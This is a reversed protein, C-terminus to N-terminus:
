WIGITLETSSGIAARYMGGSNFPMAIAGTSDVAILGATGHESALKRNIVVDCADALSLGSYEMLASVDYAAVAKMILEGHGTCSVACTANNAYTGAGIIPTDGIRGVRKNTMGGTSTAAALNGDADLAVAGVTGTADPPTIGPLLEGTPAEGPLPEDPAHDLQVRLAARAIELQDFREKSFFYADDAFVIGEERAFRAAGDGAMLVHESREMVARALTIPNRVNRVGAIAGCDLTRGCMISADLEHTADRTFVAGRGANFLIDDELARVAAEVADLASGGAELVRWGALLHAKLADRYAHEREAPMSPGRLITGAGGHIALSPM